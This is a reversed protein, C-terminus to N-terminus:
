NQCNSIHRKLHYSTTHGKGCNHCAYQLTHIKKHQKVNQKKANQYPCDSCFFIKKGDNEVFYQIENKLSTEFYNKPSFYRENKKISISNKHQVFVQHKENEYDSNPELKITGNIDETAEVTMLHTLNFPLSYEYQKNIDIEKTRETFNEVSGGFHVLRIHRNLHYLTPHRKSCTNCKFKDTHYVMHSDLNRKKKGRYSCFPCSYPNEIESPLETQINFDPPFINPSNTIANQEIEDNLVIADIGFDSLDFGWLSTLSKKQLVSESKELIEKSHIREVHLQLRKSCPFAKKCIECLHKSSHYTMHQRLHNKQTTNYKCNACQYVNKSHKETNLYVAESKTENTRMVKSKISERSSEIINKKRTNKKLTVGETKKPELKILSYITDPHNYHIHRKVHYPSPFPKFCAPCLHKIVSSNMHYKCHQNLLIQRDTTYECYNCRFKGSHLEQRHRLSNKQLKMVESQQEKKMLQKAYMESDKHINKMHSRLDKESRYSKKCKKCTFEESHRLMHVKTTKLRESKFPCQPCCHLTEGTELLEQKIKKAM